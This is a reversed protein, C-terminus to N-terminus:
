KLHRHYYASLREDCLLLSEDLALGKDQAGRLVYQMQRDASHGTAQRPDSFRLYSYVRAGIENM